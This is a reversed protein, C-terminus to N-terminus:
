HTNAFRIGEDIEYIAQQILELAKAKHGGKDGPGHRLADIADYALQKARAMDPQPEASATKAGAIVGAALVGGTVLLGLERRSKM